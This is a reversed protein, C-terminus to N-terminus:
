SLLSDATRAKLQIEAGEVTTNGVQAMIWVDGDKVADIEDTIEERFIKLEYSAGGREAGMAFEVSDIREPELGGQSEYLLMFPTGDAYRLTYNAYEETATPMRYARGASVRAYGTEGVLRNVALRPSHLTGVMSSQEMMEGLNVVWRAAPKWEGNFFLRSLHHRYSAGTDFYDAATVEDLRLEGGWVLRTSDNLRFRHSLELNYRESQMSTDVPLTQDSKGYPDIFPVMAPPVTVGLLESYIDSLLATQYSDEVKHSNHYLQANIESESDIIHQWKLQQYHTSNQRERVPSSVDTTEGVERPGSAGGFQMTLYDNVGGRYDGRFTLAATRNDDNLEYHNGDTATYAEFGDDEKYSGSLRYTFDGGGGGYRLTTERYQDDDLTVTARSGQQTSPHRTIIHIVGLFANSGYTVGNPGRSVEIREIDDIVLPLDTWEAGGTGWTYISRGDILVQMRRSYQNTNGHYTVATRPGDTDHYHGIQFGAVLRLLDSLELAGSAEIMERDIVTVATPLEDMSQPLRTINLVVPIDLLYDEGEFAVAKGACAFGCLGMLALTVVAERRHTSRSNSHYQRSSM